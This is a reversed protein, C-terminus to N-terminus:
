YPTLVQHIPAANQKYLWLNVLFLFFVPLGSRRWAGVESNNLHALYLHRPASPYCLRSRPCQHRPLPVKKECEPVRLYILLSRFSQGSLLEVLPLRQKIEM